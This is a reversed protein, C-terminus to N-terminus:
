RGCVPMAMTMAPCSVEEAVEDVLACLYRRLYPLAREFRAELGNMVVVRGDESELILGGWGCLEYSIPMELRLERLLGELLEQDRGDALLRARGAEELPGLEAVAEDILRRLTMPYAAESRMGALYAKSRSLVTDVLGERADGVIQLAKLRAQHLIRAREGVAPAAAGTRAQERLRAGDSQAQALIEEVRTQARAEIERIEDEGSACIADLIAQLSM